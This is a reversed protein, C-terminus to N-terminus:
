MLVQYFIIFYLGKCWLITWDCISIYANCSNLRYISMLSFCYELVSDNVYKLNWGIGLCTLFYQRLYLLLLKRVLNNLRYMLDDLSPDGMPTTQLRICSVNKWSTLLIVLHWSRSFSSGKYKEFM